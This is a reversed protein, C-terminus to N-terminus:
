GIDSDGVTDDGVNTNDLAFRMALDSGFPEKDRRAKDVNVGVIIALGGPIRLERRRTPVAHGCHDHAVTPDPKRRDEGFVM